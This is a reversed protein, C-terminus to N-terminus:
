GIQLGVELKAASTEGFNMRGHARDDLTNPRDKTGQKSLQAISGSSARPRWAGKAGSLAHCGETDLRISPVDRALIHPKRVKACM